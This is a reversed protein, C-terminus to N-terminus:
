QERKVEIEGKDKIDMRKMESKGRKRKGKKVNEGWIDL